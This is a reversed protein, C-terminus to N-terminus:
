ASGGLTTNLARYARWLTFLLVICLSVFLVRLLMAIRERHEVAAQTRTEVMSYFTNIPQMIALKAQHYSTDHLMLTARNRVAGTVPAASEILTMAAYETRTLADSHAKAQELLAFEEATFGAQRM